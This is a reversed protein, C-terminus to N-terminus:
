NLPAGPGGNMPGDVRHGSADVPGHWPMNVPNGSGSGGDAKSGGSTLSLGQVSAFLDTNASEVTEQVFKDSGVEFVNVSGATLVNVAKLARVGRTGIVIPM